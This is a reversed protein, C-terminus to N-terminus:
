AHDEWLPQVETTALMLGNLIFLLLFLSDGMTLSSIIPAADKWRGRSLWQSYFIDSLILL